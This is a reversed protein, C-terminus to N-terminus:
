LYNGIEGMTGARKLREPIEKLWHQGAIKFPGYAQLTAGSIVVYHDTNWPYGRRSDDADPRIVDIGGVIPRWLKGGWVELRPLGCDGSAYVSFDPRRLWPPVTQDVLQKATWSEKGLEYFVHAEIPKPKDAGMVM